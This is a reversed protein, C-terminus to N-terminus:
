NGVQTKLVKDFIKKELELYRTTAKSRIYHQFLMKISTNM